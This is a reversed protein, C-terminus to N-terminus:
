RRPIYPTACEGAGVEVASCCLDRTELVRVNNQTVTCAPRMQAATVHGPQCIVSQVAGIRPSRSSSVRVASIKRSASAFRLASTLSRCGIAGIVTSATKARTKVRRHTHHCAHTIHRHVNTETYINIDADPHRARAGDRLAVPMGCASGTTNRPFQQQQLPVRRPEITAHHPLTSESTLTQPAPLLCAAPPRLAVSVLPRM